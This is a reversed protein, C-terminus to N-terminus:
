AKPHAKKFIDKLKEISNHTYIQTAALSAHGLLEKVANLEAGNNALHTAFTHRLIHPSKKTISTVLQLHKKVILYVQKHYLPNGNAAILFLPRNITLTNFQQCFATKYLQLQQNVLNGIPILREKNGKGLVKIQNYGFDVNSTKLQVLESLRMGTSYFLLLITKHLIGTYNPEFVESNFLKDIEAIQLYQPLRKATKLFPILSCPNSSVLQQKLCYKYFSKLASIKRNISRPELQADKLNAFHTRIFSPIIQNVQNQSFNHEFFTFAQTLDNKYSIITHPSYRKQLQLYSLFGQITNSYHLVAM